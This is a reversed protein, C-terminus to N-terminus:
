VLPFLMQKEPMTLQLCFLYHYLSPRKFIDGEVVAEGGSVVEDVLDYVFEVGEGGFFDGDDLARLAKHVVPLPPERVAGVGPYVIRCAGRL